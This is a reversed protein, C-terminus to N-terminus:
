KYYFAVSVAGDLVLSGPGSGAYTAPLQLNIQAIGAVSGYAAAQFLIALTTQNESMSDYMSVMKIPSVPVPLPPGNVQGDVSAPTTQGLGTVYLTVVSGLSAPNEASNITFDQNLVALIVISKSLVGVTVANSQQTGNVVTVQTTAKGSLAFPAMVQIQQAQLQMLPMPVGDFLVQIGGVQTAVQTPSQMVGPIATQPGLNQGTIRIMEGPVIGLGSTGDPEFMPSALSLVADIEIAPTNQGDIRSIAVEGSQLSQISPTKPPGYYTGAVIADGQSGVTVTSQPAFSSFLLSKLDGSLEAVFGAQTGIGFYSAVTPFDGSSTTGSVWIHGAADLALSMGADDCSGGLYTFNYDSANSPNLRFIFADSGGAPVTPGFFGIPVSCVAQTKPRLSGVGTPFPLGWTSGTVLVSGAPDFAVARVQNIASNGFFSGYTIKDGAPSLAAVFGSTFSNGPNFV